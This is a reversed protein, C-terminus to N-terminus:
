RQRDIARLRSRCAPECRRLCVRLFLDSCVCGVLATGLRSSQSWCRGTSLAVPCAEQAGQAFPGGLCPLQKQHVCASAMKGEACCPGIETAMGQVFLGEWWWRLWSALPMERMGPLRLPHPWARLLMSQRQPWRSAHVSSCQSLPMEGMSIWGRQSPLAGMVERCLWM